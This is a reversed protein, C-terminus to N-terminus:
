PITGSPQCGGGAQPWRKDPPPLGTVGDVVKCSSASFDPKGTRRRCSAAVTAAGHSEDGTDRDSHPLDCLGFGTGGAGGASM